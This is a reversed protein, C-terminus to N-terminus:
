TGGDSGPQIVAALTKVAGGREFHLTFAVLDGPQWGAKVPVIVDLSKPSMAISDGALVAVSAVTQASASGAGTMRHRSLTLSGVGVETSTVKLLRDASGGSNTIRFFAATEQVDGVPLFMKGVTVTVRAPTGASGYATWASLGGLALGCAAVPAFAALLTDTLRRRDPWWPRQGTM